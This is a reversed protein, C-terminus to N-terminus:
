RGGRRRKEIDHREQLTRYLRDILRSEPDTSADVVSALSDDAGVADAASARDGGPSGRRSAGGGAQGPSVREDGAADGGDDDSGGGGRDVVM